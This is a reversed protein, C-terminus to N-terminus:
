ASQYLEQSASSVKTSMDAVEVFVKEIRALMGNLNTALSLFETCYSTDIRYNLPTNPDSIKSVVEIVYDLEKLVKKVFFIASSVLLLMIIIIGPIAKSSLENQKQDGLANLRERLQSKTLGPGSTSAILEAAQEAVFQRSERMDNLALYMMLAVILTAPLIAVLLLKHRTNM